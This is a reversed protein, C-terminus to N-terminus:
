CQLTRKNLVHLGQTLQARFSYLQTLQRIQLLGQVADDQRAAFTRHLALQQM